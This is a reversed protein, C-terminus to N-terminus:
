CFLRSPVDVLVVGVELKGNMAEYMKKIENRKDFLSRLMIRYVIREQTAKEVQPTNGGSECNALRQSAGGRQRGKDGVWMVM